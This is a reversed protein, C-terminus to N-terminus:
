SVVPGFADKMALKFHCIRLIVALFLRNSNHSLDFTRRALVYCSIARLWSSCGMRVQPM